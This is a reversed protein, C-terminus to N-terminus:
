SVDKYYNTMVWQRNNSATKQPNRERHESVSRRTDARAKDPDRQRHESVSRRTDARAKDPYQYCFKSVCGRINERSTDINRNHHEHVRKATAKKIRSPNVSAANEIHLM